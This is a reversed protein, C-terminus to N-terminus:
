PHTRLLATVRTGQALATLSVDAISTMRRMGLGDPQNSPGRGDDVVEIAISSGNRRISIVVSDADGHRFSNALAEEVIVVCASSFETTRALDPDILVEIEMLGLWAAACKAVANELTSLEEGIVGTEHLPASLVDLTRSLAERMTQADGTRSSEDIAGACAMLKTQLTGHLESAVKRSAVALREAVVIQRAREEDSDVRLRDLVRARHTFLAKALSTVAIGILIFVFIGVVENASPLTGTSSSSDSRPALNTVAGFALALVVAVAVISTLRSDWARREMLLNASGLVLGAAAGLFVAVLLGTGPGQGTATTPLFALIVLMAMSFSAFRNERLMGAMASRVDSRPYEAQARDMLDHSLARVSKEALGRLDEAVDANTKQRDDLAALAISRTRQVSEHLQSAVSSRLEAEVQEEQVQMTQWEVLDQLLREREKAFRSISDFALTTILYWWLASVAFAVIRIAASKATLESGSARLLVEAALASSGFVLGVSFDFAIVAPIPLPSTRRSRMVTANGLVQWLSKAAVAILAVGLWTLAGPREPNDQSLSAGRSVFLFIILLSGAVSAQWSLAWRGGLRERLSPLSANSPM